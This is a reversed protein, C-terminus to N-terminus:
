SVEIETMQNKGKNTKKNTKKKIGENEKFKEEHKPALNL